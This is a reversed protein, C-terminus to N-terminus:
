KCGGTKSEQLVTCAIEGQEREIRVVVNRLAKLHRVSKMHEVLERCIEGSTPIRSMAENSM